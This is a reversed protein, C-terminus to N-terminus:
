RRRTTVLLVAGAHRAGFRMTAEPGYLLEVQQVTQATIQRLVATSGILMGDVAVSVDSGRAHLFSPRLMLVVDYLTRSDMDTMFEQRSLVTSSSTYGSPRRDLSSSACAALTILSVAQAFSRLAARRM